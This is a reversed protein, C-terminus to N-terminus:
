HSLSLDDVIAPVMQGRPPRHLAQHDLFGNYRRGSAWVSSM